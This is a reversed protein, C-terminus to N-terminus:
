LYIILYYDILYIGPCFIMVVLLEFKPYLQLPLFMADGIQVVVNAVSYIAFSCILKSIIVVILYVILQNVYYSKILPSSGQQGYDGQQRISPFNFYISLRNSLKLLLWVLYLGVVMDLLYSM